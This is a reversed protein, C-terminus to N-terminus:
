SLLDLYKLGSGTNYLVVPETLEGLAELAAYTAAGEPCAMVGRHSLSAMAGRIADDDVAVMEGDSARVTDMVLQGESPAPVRLGAAITDDAREWPVPARGSNWATALPACGSAQVGIVRPPPDDTWGAANVEEAAKICAVAAVGGGVPLVVTRPIRMSGADGLEDFVEFWATKKGEVRYPEGFTSALFAGTDGAIEGARAGADALTGVVLELTAGTARVEAHNAAPSSEAMVVTLPIGARACYLAWAAGANGASPLVIAEVGLEKARGVGVAAGRAKFTGSPLYSDDKLLLHGLEILPTAVEGISPPEGSLPLLERYRWM